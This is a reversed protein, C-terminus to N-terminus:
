VSMALEHTISRSECVQAFMSELSEPSLGHAECVMEPSCTDQEAQSGAKWHALTNAISTLAPIGLHPHFTAQHHLGVGEVIADPLRWMYALAAGVEAHDTGLVDREAQILPRGEARQQRIVQVSEPGLFENTVLKGIDHLLGVTFALSPDVQSGIAGSAVIGAATATLLSHQWLGDSALAYAQLPKTLPGAYALAMAIHSIQRYGLLLVAQDVSAVQHSFAHAPSNCARLLKATLVSDQKLVQVVEDNATNPNALLTGLESAARSIPPLDRVKALMQPATM